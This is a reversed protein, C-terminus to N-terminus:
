DDLASERHRYYSDLFEEFMVVFMAENATRARLRERQKTKTQIKEGQDCRVLWRIYGSVSGYYYNESRERIYEYLDDNVSINITKRM